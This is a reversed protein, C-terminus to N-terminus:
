TDQVYCEPVHSGGLCVSVQCFVAYDVATAQVKEVVGFALSSVLLLVADCAVLLPASEHGVAVQRSSSHAEDLNPQMRRLAAASSYKRTM